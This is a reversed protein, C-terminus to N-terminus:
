VEVADHFLGVNSTLFEPATADATLVMVQSNTVLSISRFGYREIPEYQVSAIVGYDLYNFYLLLDTAAKEAPGYKNSLSEARGACLDAVLKLPMDKPCYPELLDSQQDATEAVRLSEKFEDGRRRGRDMLEKVQFRADRFSVDAPEEAEALENDEFRMNLGSLLRSAVWKERDLKHDNGFFDLSADLSDIQEQRWGKDNDHM